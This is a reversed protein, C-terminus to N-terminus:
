AYVLGRQLHNPLVYYSNSDYPEMGAIAWELELKQEILKPHYHM